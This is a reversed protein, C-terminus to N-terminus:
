SRMIKVIDRGIIGLPGYDNYFDVIKSHNSVDISAFIHHLNDKVRNGEKYFSFPDYYEVQGGPVISITEGDHFYKNKFWQNTM